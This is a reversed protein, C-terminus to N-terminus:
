EFRKPDTANHIHTVRATHTVTNEKNKLKGEKLNELGELGLRSKQTCVLITFHLSPLFFLTSLQLPMMPYASAAINTPQNQCPLQKKLKIEVLYYIAYAFLVNGWHHHGM